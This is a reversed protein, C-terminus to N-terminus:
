SRPQLLWSKTRAVAVHNVAQAKTPNPVLRTLDDPADVYSDLADLAFRERACKFYHLSM